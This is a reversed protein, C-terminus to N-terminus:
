QMRTSRAAEAIVAIHREVLQELKNHEKSLENRDLLAKLMAENYEVVDNYTKSGMLKDHGAKLVCFVLLGCSAGCSVGWGWVFATWFM